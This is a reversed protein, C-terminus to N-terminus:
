IKLAAPPQPSQITNGNVVLATGCEIDIRQRAGYYYGPDGNSSATGHRYYFTHPHGEARKKRYYGGLIANWKISAVAAM